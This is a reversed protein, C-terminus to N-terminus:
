HAIMFLYGIRIKSQLPMFAPPEQKWMTNLTQMNIADIENSRHRTDPLTVELTRVYQSQNFVFIELSFEDLPHILRRRRRFPVDIKDGDKLLDDNKPLDPPILRISVAFDKGVSGPMNATFPLQSSNLEGGPQGQWGQALTRGTLSSGLTAAGASVSRERRMDIESGLSTNQGFSFSPAVSGPRPTIPMNGYTPFAPTRPLPGPTHPVGLGLGIKAGGSTPPPSQTFSPGMNFAGPTGPLPPLPPSAPISSLPSPIPSFKRKITGPLNPSLRGPTGAPSLTLSSPRPPPALTSATTGAFTHRKTNEVATALQAAPDYQSTRPNATPFPSAPVPLATIGNDHETSDLAPALAKRHPDLDLRCNWKSLFPATHYSLDKAETQIEEDLLTFPRGTIHISVIRDYHNLNDQDPFPAGDTSPSKLFTIAYLLYYQERSRMLIPFVSDQDELNDVGWPILKIKAEEDKIFVTVNEVAFGSESDGPNEIEISLVVTSEEDISEVENEAESQYILHPVM